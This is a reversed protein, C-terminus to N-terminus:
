GRQVIEWDHYKRWLIDKVFQSFTSGDTGELRHAKGAVIADLFPLLYGHMMLGDYGSKMRYLPSIEDAFDALVFSCPFTDFFRRLLPHNVPDTVDTSIFLPVNFRSLLPSQHWPRRCVIHPVSRPSLHPLPPHPTRLAAIDTKRNPPQNGTTNTLKSELRLTEDESLGMTDHVLKWWIIRANKSGRDLFKGDGIRVHAAVYTGGMSLQISNAIQTLIDNSFVMSERVEKRIDMDRHRRLRLRSSGFLTGLQILRHPLQGLVSISVSENFRPSPMDLPDADVFRFHYLSKDKVSFTDNSTVGLHEELWSESMDWRQILSYDEGLATINALWAWPVMTYEFYNTCDVPLSIWSAVDACHMLKDKGSTSVVDYLHDFPFYSTIGKGLRAPPMLLTRNLLRAMILANELAIRQNHFGSHPLYSLYRASPDVPSDLEFEVVQLADSVTEPSRTTIVDWRTSYLYYASAFCFVTTMMLCVILVGLRKEFVSLRSTNGQLRRMRLKSPSRKMSHIRYAGKEISVSPSSQSHRMSTSRMQKSTPPLHSSLLTVLSVSLKVPQKYTNPLM